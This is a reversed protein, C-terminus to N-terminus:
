QNQLFIKQYVFIKDAMTIIGALHTAPSINKSLYGTASNRIMKVISAENTYMILTLIRVLPFYQSVYFATVFGDM